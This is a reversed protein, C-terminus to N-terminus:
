FIREAFGCLVPLTILCLLTSFGVQEAASVYDKNYLRGFIATNAGIPCAATFQLVTVMVLMMSICIVSAEGLVATVLPIGIFGANSFSSSFMAIGDKRFVLVSVTMSLVLAAATLLASERLILSTEPTREIWFTRIVIAPIVLYVLINTLDGSGEDTIMKRRCFFYGIAMFIFMVIIQRFLAQMM